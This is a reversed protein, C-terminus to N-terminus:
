KSFLVVENCKPNACAFANFDTETEDRILKVHKCDADNFSTLQEKAVAEVLNGGHETDIRSTPEDKPSPQKPQM